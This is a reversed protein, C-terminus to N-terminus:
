VGAKLWRRIVNPERCLTQFVSLGSQFSWRRVIARASERVVREFRPVPPTGYHVAFSRWVDMKHPLLIVLQHGGAM